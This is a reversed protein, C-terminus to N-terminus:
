AFLFKYEHLRNWWIQLNIVLVLFQLFYKRRQFGCNAENIEENNVDTSYQNPSCSLSSSSGESWSPSSLPNCRTEGVISPFWISDEDASPDEPFLNSTPSLINDM